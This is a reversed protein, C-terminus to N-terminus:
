TGAPRRLTESVEDLTDVPAAAAMEHDDGATVVIGVVTGNSGVVPAGLAEPALSRDFVLADPVRTGAVTATGTPDAVTAAVPTATGDSRGILVSADSGTLPRRGALVAVRGHTADVEVTALGTSADHGGTRAPHAVGDAGVVVIEGAGAIAGAATVLGGQGDIWVGSATTWAQGRRVRVQAVADLAGSGAAGAAVTTAARANLAAASGRNGARASPEDRVPAAARGLMVVGLTLVAGAVAAGALVPAIRRGARATRHAPATGSPLGTAAGGGHGL